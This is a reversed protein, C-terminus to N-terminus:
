DILTRIRQILHLQRVQLKGNKLPQFMTSLHDLHMERTMEAWLLRYNMFFKRGQKAEASRQSDWVMEYQRFRRCIRAMESQGVSAVDRIKGPWLQSAITTAHRMMSYPLKHVRIAEKVAEVSPEVNAAFEKLLQLHGDCLEITTEGLTAQIISRLYIWRSYHHVVDRSLGTHFQANTLATEMVVSSQIMGCRTCVVHGEQVDEVIENETMCSKCRPAPIGIRQRKWENRTETHKRKGRQQKESVISMMTLPSPSRPRPFIMSSPSFTLLPRNPLLLLRQLLVHLQPFEQHRLFTKYWAQWNEPTKLFNASLLLYSMKSDNPLVQLALAHLLNLTTM